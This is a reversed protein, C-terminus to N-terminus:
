VQQRVAVQIKRKGSLRQTILVPSYVFCLISKAKHSAIGLLEAKSEEGRRQEGEGIERM